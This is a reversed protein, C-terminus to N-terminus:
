VHYGWVRLAHGWADKVEKRMRLHPFEQVVDKLTVYKWVDDYAAHALIRAMMWRRETMNHASLIRRVDEDTLNYDWLFYPRKSIDM